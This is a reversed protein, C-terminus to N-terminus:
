VFNDANDLTQRIFDLFQAADAGNVVKHDVSLSLNVLKRITINGDVLVCTDTIRGLGLISCQGPVVIPILLDVGFEGLNSLTICAGELDDPGLKNATTRTILDKRYAAIEAVTKTDADGIVPAVQEHGVATTLGIGIRGALQIFDDALRGTMIPFRRLALATARILFDDFSIVVDGTENLKAQVKLLETIDAKTNLYFCPIERKSRLMQQGMIRHLRSPVVKQGLEYHRKRVAKGDSIAKAQAAPSVDIRDFEAPEASVTATADAKLSDIFSQSIQEDQGALVMVATDVRVTQGIEVLIKKVFGDAPSELEVAAKDTEIEFICDGKKVEDGESFLANVITAEEMTESFKPLRVEKVV